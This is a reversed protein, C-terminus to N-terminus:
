FHNKCGDDITDSVDLTTRYWFYDTPSSRECELVPSSTNGTVNLPCDAWPLPSKFSNFFYFCAWALITTYYLGILLSIQLNSLLIVKLTMKTDSVCNSAFGIGGLYPNIHCWVGISGKRIKQGLALELYYLPYGLLVLM